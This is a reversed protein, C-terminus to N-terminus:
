HGLAEALADFKERASDRAGEREDADYGSPDDRMQELEEVSDKAEDWTDHITRVDDTEPMLEELENVLATFRERDGLSLVRLGYSSLSDFSEIMERLLTLVDDPGLDSYEAAAQAGDELEDILTRAQNLQFRQHESIARARDTFTKVKTTRRRRAVPAEPAQVVAGPAEQLAAALEGEPETPADHTSAYQKAEELTRTTAGPLLSRGINKDKILAALQTPEVHWIVERSTHLSRAAGRRLTWGNGEYVGAEIKTFTISM